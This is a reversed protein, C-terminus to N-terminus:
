NGARARAMRTWVGKCFVLNVTTRCTQSRLVPRVNFAAWTEWVRCLVFESWPGVEALGSRISGVGTHAECVEVAEISGACVLCFARVATMLDAETDDSCIRHAHLPCCTETCERVLSWSQGQCWLCLGRVLRPMEKGVHM